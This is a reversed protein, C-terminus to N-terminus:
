SRIMRSIIISQMVSNKYSLLMEYYLFRCHSKGGDVTLEWCLLYRSLSWIEQSYQFCKELFSIIRGVWATSQIKCIVMLNDFLLSKVKRVCETWSTLLHVQLRYYVLCLHVYIDCHESLIVGKKQGLLAGGEVYSINLECWCFNLKLMSLQIQMMLILLYKHFPVLDKSKLELASILPYVKGPVYGSPGLTITDQWSKQHYCWSM